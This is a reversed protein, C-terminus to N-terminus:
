KLVARAGVTQVFGHVVIFCAVAREHGKGYHAVLGAALERPSPAYYSAQETVKFEPWGV